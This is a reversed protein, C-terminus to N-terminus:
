SFRRAAHRADGPWECKHRQSMDLGKLRDGRRTRKDLGGRREIDSRRRQGRSDLAEFLGDRQLQEIARRGSHAQGLRALRREFGRAADLLATWSIRRHFPVLALGGKAAGDVRADGGVRTELLVEVRGDERRRRSIM